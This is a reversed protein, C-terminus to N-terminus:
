CTMVYMAFGTGAIFVLKHDMQQYTSTVKLYQIEVFLKRFVIWLRFENKPVFPFIFDFDDSEESRIVPNLHDLGKKLAIWSVRHWRRIVQFYQFILKAFFFHLARKKYHISKLFHQQLFDMIWRSLWGKDSDCIFVIPVTCWALYELHTCITTCDFGTWNKPQNRDPQARLIWFKTLDPWILDPQCESRDFNPNM